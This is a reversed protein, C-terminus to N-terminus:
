HMSGAHLQVKRNEKMCQEYIQQKPATSFITVILRDMKQQILSGLATEISLYLDQYKNRQSPFVFIRTDSCEITSAIQMDTPMDGSVKLEKCRERAKEESDSMKFAM